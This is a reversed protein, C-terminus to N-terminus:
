PAAPGPRVVHEIILKFGEEMGMQVRQPTPLLKDLLKCLMQANRARPDAVATQITTEWWPSSHLVVLAANLTASARELLIEKLGREGILAIVEAILRRAEGEAAPNPAAMVRERGVFRRASRRIM